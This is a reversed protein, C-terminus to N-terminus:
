GIISFYVFIVLKGKVYLNVKELTNSIFSRISKLTFIYKWYM